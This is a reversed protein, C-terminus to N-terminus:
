ARSRATRLRREALAAAERLRRAEASLAARGAQTLEYYRRSLGPHPEVPEDPEAEDVLGDSILRAIVRYMSGARPTLRGGSEDAIAVALAYGHLPGGALALLAHYDLNSLGNETPAM